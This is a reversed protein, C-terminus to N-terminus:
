ADPEKLKYMAHRPHRTLLGDAALGRMIAGIRSLSLAQVAPDADKRFYRVNFPIIWEGGVGAFPYRSIQRIEELVAERTDAIARRQRPHAPATM